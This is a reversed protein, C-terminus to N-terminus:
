DVAKKEQKGTIIFAFVLSKAISGMLYKSARYGAYIM